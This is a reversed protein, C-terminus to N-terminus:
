ESTGKPGIGLAKLKRYLNTREMGARRALETMSGGSAELQAQLYRREFQERAERLPLDLDLVERRGAQMKAMGLTREVEDQGIHEGSGMILLRQVLNKLERVNGPWSYRKLLSQAQPTFERRPLGDREVFEDVFDRLLEAVDEAHERLPPLVLPVVNLHYYLDERFRGARVEADLDKHTAAIVRVDVSVPESGGVRLFARSELASLLQLQMQMDMDAVEGLFLTGGNAQELLGYGIRGGEEIGFLEVASHERTAMSGIGADVFPRESRHSLSHIYRAFTEKGTGPEGIILVWTGHEAVRRAQERLSQMVQSHGAPSRVGVRRKLGRNEQTLRATELAHSVTLLLKDLSLPKEIFDYAGLRTAEVATEVTGHGSMVIVPCPLEDRERWDKLLSIGDMDPMWIDLLLLDPRRRRLAERAMKANEALDVSYGEDELIDRLLERINTEDDVVLIQAKSM